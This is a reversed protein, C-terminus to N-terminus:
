RAKWRRSLVAVALPEVALAEVAEDLRAAAVGHWSGAATM